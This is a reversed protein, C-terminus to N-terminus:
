ATSKSPLKVVFKAGGLDSNSLSIEGQHWGVIQRTIALGLGYGGSKRNRSSDVRSFPEFISEWNEEPIGCGDDEVAILVFEGDKRVTVRIVSAAFKLANGTLNQLARHLYHRDGVIDQMESHWQTEIEGKILNM